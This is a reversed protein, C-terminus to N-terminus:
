IQVPTLEFATPAIYTVQGFIGYAQNEQLHECNSILMFFKAVEAWAPTKNGLHVKHYM